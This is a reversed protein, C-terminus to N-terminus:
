IIIDSNKPKTLGMDIRETYKTNEFKYIIVSDEDEKMLKEIQHRLERLKGETIEGEFVSNQIHTLYRRMLKLYKAVRKEGVDYMLVVFM